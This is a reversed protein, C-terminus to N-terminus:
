PPASPGCAWRGMTRKLAGGAGGATPALSVAGWTRYRANRRSACSIPAIRQEPLEAADCRVCDLLQAIRGARGEATTVWPRNMFPPTHRMHQGHGCSLLAVWHGEDDTRFGIIPRQM